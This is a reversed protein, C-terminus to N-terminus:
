KLNIEESLADAGPANNAKIKSREFIEKDVIVKDRGYKIRSLEKIRIAIQSDGRAPPNCKINFPTSTMNNILLKVYANFNDINLLDQASFVPEFQKVLFEADDAGVRFVAMSGVNGFVADKIKDELQGIFQHAIILNLKYKRAEALITSISDTTFNQFEDIYLYFDPRQDEPTDVRSFAGMLFKGVIILGLLYSNLDGMKGKSLNALFIKKENMIKRFDFASKQQCLIPRMIDNALFINTKSTIYPVINALSAEGGAKEAEKEWFDKVVINNTKSLKYKRFEADVLVKPVELLTAGSEPDDMVLLLAGRMYQQFVPGMGEPAEPFIKKFINIMENALFTKQEPFKPDYELMNLGMPREVDGPNFYIVDEAREPPIMGLIDDVDSGHPDIFCVGKGNMIDQKIMNIMLKTKGTGTQGIVYFHRRRDNETMRIETEEGRFINKGLLVGEKSINIPPVSEKSKLWKMKPSGLSTLPFHFISAVEESNLIMKQRKSFVRFSFYFSLKKLGNKKMKELRLSNLNPVGFQYFSGEMHSLLEASREQTNGSFLLRINAEFGTKSIKSQLSKITEQADLTMQSQIQPEGEKPKKAIKGKVADIFSQGRNMKRIISLGFKDWNKSAPKLIIQLAGGEGTEEIKSLATSINELPDIELEKYTKIPLISNKELKLFGGACAGQPNFINYDKVKQVIAKPYFGYIQKELFTEYKKPAALYFSIEAGSFPVAMELVIYPQGYSFQIRSGRERLSGLSSLFQEMVAIRNKKEEASLDEKTERPIKILFLSMNLARVILGRGRSREVLLIFALGGILLVILGSVIYIFQMTEM